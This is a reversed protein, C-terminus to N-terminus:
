VICRFVSIGGDGDGARFSGVGGVNVCDRGSGAIPSSRALSGGVKSCESRSDNETSSEFEVPVIFGAETASVNCDSPSLM